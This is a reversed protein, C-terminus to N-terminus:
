SVTLTAASSTVSNSLSNTIVCRYKYGNRAATASISLTATKASTSTLNTWSTSGPNQYQWQYTLGTGAATVTFKATSGATKTVSKPQATIRACIHMTATSSTVSNGLSNTIVCRYQYGERAETANPTISATKAGTATTEQWTDSGPKKLMWQYSLGTGEATVSFTPYTGDGATVSKPQATIKATVKLTAASSTVNIGLSNGIVCHYKYGSIAEKASVSLTATKASASTLNTWSTSGPNQYQWQYTLGTGEAAVTFKATNGISTKVDKPQTTVKASVSLTADSSTVNIGLSNGIVCHYKYGSIAEKASVSLTATKASASTLNTWSTSGPNQYQWQYTLGTGEAAVTFKATNGISTKVNKPQTTIKASVSLTAESSTVNVGLSNKIVCRYKYGSIAEKATVSLTATTASASTLNTWSTSGPNQYQWQYTLGTGEAAVTFKATNGISTKVNKPQQTIKASVSLTASSSTVSNGVSNKIVCRYKYGNRAETAPVSLAATQNGSQTSNTWTTTGPKQYQWQYTLGTGEATVTFKATNGVNTKVSKPQKTIKATVKLTASWSNVYNGLSNKIVCKYKYGNRAETAPVSLTATQNGNQTSNTWTTTGPKQYQWQYTLGSGSATVTFVATDGVAATVSKPQETIQAIVKLTAPGLYAIQGIKNTVACRFQMGNREETAKVKLAATQNGTFTANVWQKKSKDYYQWQYTLSDGFLDVSFNANQGVYKSQDKPGCSNLFEDFSKHRQHLEYLVEPMRKDIEAETGVFAFNLYGHCADLDAQFDGNLVGIGNLNYDSDLIGDNNTDVYSKTCQAIKEATDETYKRLLEHERRCYTDCTPNSYDYDHLADMDADSKLFHTYRTSLKGYTFSGGFISMPDDWTPDVEYYQGDICVLNWEHGPSEVCYSEIDAAALLMNYAKAYGECVAEGIGEGRVNLAYSLFAASAVHNESDGWSEGDACDEYDCHRILWDHLQRAKLADNMWPDTETEVIYKCLATCYDDVFKVGWSRSFHNRIATEIAPNLVPYTRGSSDTEYQLPEVGNVKTIPCNSFAEGGRYTVSSDSLQVETLATCGDFAGNRLVTPGNVTLKKLATCDSFAYAAVLETSEPLTVSTLGSCQYFGYSDITKVKPMSVSTLSKCKYFALSNIVTAKPLSLSTLSSCDDFAREGVTEVKPVSVDKLATCGFFAYNQIAAAGKATVSTLKRCCWFASDPISTVSAPITITEIYNWGFATDGITKITDPLIIETLYKQWFAREGIGTVTYSGIKSPVTVTTYRISCDTIVAEKSDTDYTYTFGTDTTGTGTAAEATLDASCIFVAGIGLVAASLWTILRSHKM